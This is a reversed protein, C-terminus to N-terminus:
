QYYQAIHLKNYQLVTLMVTVFVVAKNKSKLWFFRCKYGWDCVDM